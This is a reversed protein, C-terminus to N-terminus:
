GLFMIISTKSFSNALCISILKDFKFFTSSFYDNMLLQLLELQDLKAIKIATSFNESPVRESPLFSNFLKEQNDNKM